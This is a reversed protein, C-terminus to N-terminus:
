YYDFIKENVPNISTLSSILLTSSYGTKNEKKKLFRSLNWQIKIMM